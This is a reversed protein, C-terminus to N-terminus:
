SKLKNWMLWQEYELMAKVNSLLFRNMQSAKDFDSLLTQFESQGIVINIAPETEYPPMTAPPLAAAAFTLPQLKYRKEKSQVIDCHYKRKFTSIATDVSDFSTDFGTGNQDFATM